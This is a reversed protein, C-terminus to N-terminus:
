TLIFILNLLTVRYRNENLLLFKSEEYYQVKGESKKETVNNKDRDSQRKRRGGNSEIDISVTKEQLLCSLKAKENVKKTQYVDLSCLFDTKNECDRTKLTAIIGDHEEENHFVIAMCSDTENLKMELDGDVRITGEYGKHNLQNVWDKSHVDSYLWIVVVFQYLYLSM